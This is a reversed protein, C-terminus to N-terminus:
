PKKQQFMAFPGNKSDINCNKIFKLGVHKKNKLWFFHCKYQAKWAAVLPYFATEYESDVVYIISLIGELAERQRGTSSYAAVPDILLVALM